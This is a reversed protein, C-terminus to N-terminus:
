YRRGAVPKRTRAEQETNRQGPEKESAMIRKAREIERPDTPKITGKVINEARTRTMGQRPPKGSPRRTHSKM